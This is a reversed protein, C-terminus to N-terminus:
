RRLFTLSAWFSEWDYDSRPMAAIMHVSKVLWPGSGPLTFAVRGASDSRVARALDPRGQHLATVLAGALPRGEYLVRFGIPEEAGADLVTAEPVIELTLGIPRTATPDRTTGDAAAGVELLAKACRSYVERGPSGTTGSARRAARVHDLGEAALYGEFKGAELEIKTGRSQFAAVPLGREMVRIRGAPDAGEVGGVSRDGSAEVLVFREIAARSRVVPEGGFGEGVRLSLDVVEGAEPRFTSPEIWFDHAASSRVFPSACLSAGLIAVAVRGMM